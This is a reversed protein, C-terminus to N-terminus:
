RALRKLIMEDKHNKRKARRGAPTDYKAERELVDEKKKIRKLYKRHL